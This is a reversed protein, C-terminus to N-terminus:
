KCEENCPSSNPYVDKETGDDNREQRSKYTGAWDRIAYEFADSYAERSTTVYHDGFSASHVIFGDGSRKYWGYGKVEKADITIWTENRMSTNGSDDYHECEVDVWFCGGAIDCITQLNPHEKVMYKIPAIVKVAAQIPTKGTKEQYLVTFETGIMFSIVAVIATIFKVHKM